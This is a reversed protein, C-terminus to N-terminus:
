TRTARIVIAPPIQPRRMWSFTNKSSSIEPFAPEELGDIVFGHDFCTKFIESLPRHFIPHPEPQNIIGSSLNPPVNLYKHIAVGFRQETQGSENILEATMKSQNSNFCPHPLSFVFRGSPKLLKKLSSFLPEITPMDMLAMSSVASDFRSEGLSLLQASDTADIRVYEIRGHEPRTRQRACQLFEDSFDCAIVCAGTQAMQRAYNGNGCAIDLITQGPKPELLRDTAPMILTKQFDNGEGIENDWWRAIRNWVDHTEKTNM